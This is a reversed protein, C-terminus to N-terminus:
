FSRCLLVMSLFSLFFFFVLFFLLESPLITSHRCSSHKWFASCSLAWARLWQLPLVSELVRSLWLVLRLSYWITLVWVFSVVQNCSGADGLCWYCGTCSAEDSCCAFCFHLGLWWSVPNGGWEAKGIVPLLFLCVFVWCLDWGICLKCLRNYWGQSPLFWVSYNLKSLQSFSVEFM